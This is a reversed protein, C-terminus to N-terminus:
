LIWSERGQGLTGGQQSPSGGVTQRWQTGQLDQCDIALVARRGSEDTHVDVVKGKYHLTMRFGPVEAQTYLMGQRACGLSCDSWTGAEWNGVAVQSQDRSSLGFHKAALAGARELAGPDIEGTPTPASPTRTPRLQPASAERTPTPSAGAPQETDSTPLPTPLLTPTSEVTPHATPASPPTATPAETPLATPPVVVMEPLSATPAPLPTEPEAAVEENAAPAVPTPAPAAESPQLPAALEVASDGCSALAIAAIILLYALVGLWGEHCSM